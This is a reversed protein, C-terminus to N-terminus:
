RRAAWFAANRANIDAVTPNAPGPLDSPTRGLFAAAKLQSRLAFEDQDARTIKWKEAVNEATRGM